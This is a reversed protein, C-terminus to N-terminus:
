SRCQVGWAARQSTVVAYGEHILNGAIAKCDSRVQLCNIAISKLQRCLLPPSRATDQIRKNIM